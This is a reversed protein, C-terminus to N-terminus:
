KRASLVATEQSKKKEKELQQSPKTSNHLQAFTFINGLPKLSEGQGGPAESIYIRCIQLTTQSDQM